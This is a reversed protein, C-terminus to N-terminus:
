PISGGEHSSEGHGTVDPDPLFTYRASATVLAVLRAEEVRTLGAFVQDRVPEYCDLCLAVDPTDCRACPWTPWTLHYLTTRQLLAETEAKDAASATWDVDCVCCILRAHNHIPCCGVRVALQAVMGSWLRQALPAQDTGPIHYQDGM